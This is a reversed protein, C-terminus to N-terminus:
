LAELRDFSQLADLLGIRWVKGAEQAEGVLPALVFSVALVVALGIRRM